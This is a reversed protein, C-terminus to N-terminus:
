LGFFKIMAIGMTKDPDNLLACRLKNRISPDKIEKHVWNAAGVRYHEDGCGYKGSKFIRLFEHEGIEDIVSRLQLDFLKDPYIEDDWEPPFNLFKLFDYKSIKKNM